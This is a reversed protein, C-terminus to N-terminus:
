FCKRTNTFNEKEKKKSEAISGKEAPLENLLEHVPVVDEVTGSAASNNEDIKRRYKMLVRLKEQITKARTKEQRIWRSEPLNDTFTNLVNKMQELQQGHEVIHVKHEGVASLFLLKTENTFPFKVKKRAAPSSTFSVDPPSPAVPYPPLPAVCM